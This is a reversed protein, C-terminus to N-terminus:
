RSCKMEKEYNGHINENQDTDEPMVTGFPYDWFKSSIGFGKQQHKYHHLNHHTKLRQFYNLYPKGGHHLYYHILDYSVYGSVIGSFIIQAMGTPFIALCMLFFSVAFFLAPLPPFVLRKPDMPSKHHQGHLSFHLRIFFPWDSPPRLHFLWRHIVYELLTWFAVGLVFLFPMSHPGHLHGLANKPWMEPEQSLNTYSSWIMFFIVPLWTIPVYWWDAKTLMEALDSQFLRVPWDVQQHTWSFYKDGLLEVQGLLPKSWDVLDNKMYELRRKETSTIHSYHGNTHTKSPNDTIDLRYKELINYAAQSHTHSFSSQMVQEIDQGNHRELVERGGPHRDVFDTIDYEKGARTVRIRTPQPCGNSDTLGM